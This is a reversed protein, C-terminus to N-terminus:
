ASVPVVPANEAVTGELFTKIQEELRIAADLSIRDPKNQVVIVDTLGLAEIAALHERTQPQPCEEEASIILLAADMVSRGTLMTRMLVEHGPCDVFSITRVFEYRGECGKRWCELGIIDEEVGCSTYCAPRLCGAESCKYIKAAAYGLKITINRAMEVKHRMTKTATITRVLTGKGHAVPGITGVTLASPLDKSAAGRVHPKPSALASRSKATSSPLTSAQDRTSAPPRDGLGPPSYNTPPMQASLSETIASHQANHDDTHRGRADSAMSNEHLRYPQLNTTTPM